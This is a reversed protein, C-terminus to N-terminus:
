RPQFSRERQMARFERRGAGGDTSDSKHQERYRERYDTAYAEVTEERLDFALMRAQDDM